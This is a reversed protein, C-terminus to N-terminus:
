PRAAGARTDHTRPGPHPLDRYAISVQSLFETDGALDAGGIVAASPTRPPANATRAALAAAVVAAETAAELARGTLGGAAARDRAAASAEQCRYPQLMLLGDRIEIVRRYLRLRLNGLVLADPLAPPDLAISPDAAYLARWLPGLRYYRRYRHLWGSVAPLAAALLVLVYASTPLARSLLYGRGVSFDFSMRSSMALTAKCMVYLVGLAAGGAVLWMSARIVPGEAERAYRAGLGIITVLAPLQAACYALVYEMVRPSQPLLNRLTAFLLCMAVFAAMAWWAQWRRGRARGGLRVMFEQAAWVTFVMGAHSILRAAHSAGAFRGIEAYVFAIQATLTWALGALVWRVQRRAGDGRPCTLFLIWALVAPGWNRLEEAM